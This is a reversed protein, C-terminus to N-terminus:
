TACVDTTAIVSDSGVAPATPLSNSFTCAIEARQLLGCQLFTRMPRSFCARDADPDGTEGPDSSEVFGACKRSDVQRPPLIIRTHLSDWRRASEHQSKSLRGPLAVSEAPPQSARVRPRPRCADLLSPKM